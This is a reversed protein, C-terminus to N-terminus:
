AWYERPRRRRIVLFFLTMRRVSASAFHPLPDAALVADPVSLLALSPATSLSTLEADTHGASSCQGPKSTHSSAASAAPWPDDSTLLPATASNLAADVSSATISSPAAVSTSSLAPAQGNDHSPIWPVHAQFVLTMTWDNSNVVFLEDTSLHSSSCVPASWHPPKVM